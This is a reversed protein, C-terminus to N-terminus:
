INIPISTTLYFIYEMMWRYDSYFLPLSLKCITSLDIFQSSSFAFLDVAIQQSSLDLALKKYFDSAPAMNITDQSCSINIRKNLSYNVIYVTLNRIIENLVLKQTM